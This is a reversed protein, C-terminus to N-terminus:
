LSNLFALLDKIAEESAHELLGAPMLSSALPQLTAIDAKPLTVIQTQTAIVVTDGSQETVFGNYVDGDQTEIETARFREAVEKSPELIADALQDRTLRRTVGALDPGFVQGPIEPVGQHCTHCQLQLYLTRGDASSGADLATETLIRRRQEATLTPATAPTPTETPLAQDTHQAHWNSWYTAIIGQELPNTTSDDFVDGWPSVGEAGLDRAPSWSPDSEDTQPWDAPRSPRAQWAVNSILRKVTHGDASPWTLSALLGATPDWSKAEIVLEHNGESLSLPESHPSQWDDGDAIAEGNLYAKFTNDGSIQLVGTTAHEVQFQRRFFAEPESASKERAWIWRPKPLQSQRSHGTILTALQDLTTAARPHQRLQNLTTALATPQSEATNLRLAQLTADRGSQLGVQLIPQLSQELAEHNTADRAAQWLLSLDQLEAGQTILLETLRTRLLPSGSTDALQERALAKAAPMPRRKLAELLVLREPESESRHYLAILQDPNEHQKVLADITLKGLQSTPLLQDFSQELAQLHQQTFRSLVTGWFSPFQLGKGSFETFWGSQNQILWQVLGDRLEPTWGTNLYSLASALHFQTVPDSETVLAELLKPVAADVQYQGLLRAQEWRIEPDTHPFNQSLHQHIRARADPSNSLAEEYIGLVRLFDLQQSRESPLVNFLREIASVLRNTEPHERRVDAAVLARMLRQPADSNLASDIWSETPLHALAQMAAYRVSRDEDELATLLYPINRPTAVRTLAEASRRRVFASSDELLPYLIQPAYRARQLGTIWAAQARLEEHPSKALRLYFSGSIRKYEPSLLRLARLRDELPIGENLVYRQLAPRWSFRLQKKAELIQLRTWESQPQPLQLVQKIVRDRAKELTIRPPLIAPIEVSSDSENAYFLRWVGQNHDTIFLSGDPAVTVDVVAFDIPTGDPMRAEAKPIALVEMASSWTAGSRELPFSLVRGSSNYNGATASKWRYDCVIFANQYHDPLQHHEYFTGWTPSGRGADAIGPITDIYYPPYAGVGQWGLDAGVAWHNLRVPRYWPVDVHWEMDSDLSFLEGLYNMGLNPPNRGGASVCEWQDGALNFRFVSANRERLVPSSVETIHMRDRTGGGDGTVFYIWDDHGRLLTHAAHDGGTHFPEGIRGQHQPNEPYGTYLQVGDGGVAYLQDDHVLIGQPGRPGLGGVVPEAQEYVGDQDSDLLRHIANGTGVLLTGQGDFSLVYSGGTLEPQAAKYIHFGDPLEFQDDLLVPAGLCLTAKIIGTIALLIFPHSTPRM